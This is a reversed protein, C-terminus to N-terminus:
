VDATDNEDESVTFWPTFLTRKLGGKATVVQVVRGLPDHYATDAYLDQRASDDSVYRWDNLFFPQYTRVPLGKNDYETRGTVAWRTETLATTPQGTSDTVLSGDTARLWAEGTAQRVATQLLRGFGDSFSVQQRIQQANDSDYRDTTLTVTQPPQAPTGLLHTYREPTMRRRAMATIYGDETVGRASILGDRKDALEQLRQRSVRPMWSDAFYVQCTSVPLPGTLTLAEDETAPLTFITDSYGAPQGNETVSFRSQTIRRLADMTVTHTNNNADKLAAPSLFRWDYAASVTLGSPDQHQIIVCHYKDRFVTNIGTLPSNRISRPLWFQAADGYETQASRALWM